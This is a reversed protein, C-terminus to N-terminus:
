GGFMTSEVLECIIHGATIHVEQIRPTDDSPARLCLDVAGFLLGGSRGTMGVTICGMDRAREIARLVNPSTGSTSIGVVVDGERALAEVQREFVHEFGYDNGVATLVSTNCSLALSPLGEREMYFKSVLEAALHQADAASGGNGMWIVKRGRRLAEVMTDAIEAITRHDEDTLARKAEVSESFAEKIREIGM